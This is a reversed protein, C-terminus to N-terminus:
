WRARRLPRRYVRDDGTTGYAGLAAFGPATAFQGATSPALVGKACLAIGLALGAFVGTLFMWENKGM